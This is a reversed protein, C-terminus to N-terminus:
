FLLSRKYIINYDDRLYLLARGAFRTQGALISLLAAQSPNALAFSAVFVSVM